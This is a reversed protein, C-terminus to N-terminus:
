GGVTTVDKFYSARGFFNGDSLTVRLPRQVITESTSRATVRIADRDATRGYVYVREFALAEVRYTEGTDTMTTRNRDMTAIDTSKRDYMYSIDFGGNTALAVVSEFGIVRNFYSFNKARMTVNAEKSIFRDDGASDHFVVSDRGGQTADAIVRRFDVAHVATGGSPRFTVMEPRAVLEDDGPGGYIYALDLDGPTSHAFVSDFGRAVNCFIKNMAQLRVESPTVLLQDKLRSRDRMTAQDNGGATAYAIVQSFGNARSSFEGTSSRLITQSPTSVLRDDTERDYLFAFDKGGATSFGATDAFGFASNKYSFAVDRMTTRDAGVTFRDARTSDYFFATDRGGNGHVNVTEIGRVGFQYASSTLTVNLPRAILTDSLASGRVTALDAGSGGDVTVNEFRNAVVRLGERNITTLNRELVINDLGDGGYLGISDTGGLGNLVIMNINDPVAITQDNARVFYSKGDRNVRWLFEDDRTTGTVTLTNGDVRVRVDTADSQSAFVSALLDGTPQSPLSMNPNVAFLDADNGEFGWTWFYIESIEDGRGQSANILSQYLLKQELPDLTESNAGTLAGPGTSWNAVSTRNYPIAGFEQIYFPMGNGNRLSDVYPLLQDDFLADWKSEFHALVEEAPRSSTGDAFAVDSFYDTYYANVAAYDISPHDWIAAKLTPNEFNASTSAYGIDGSFAADIQGILSNLFPTHESNRVFQELESAFTLREVDHQEALLALDASLQRYDNYFNQRAAGTPNWDGRWGDTEFIPSLTVRMGLQKATVIAAEIHAFNAGSGAVFTGQQEDLDRYAVLTVDNAGLEHMDRIAQSWDTAGEPGQEYFGIINFGLNPDVAPNYASLTLRPELEEFKSKSDHDRRNM